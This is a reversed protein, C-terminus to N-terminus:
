RLTMESKQTSGKPAIVMQAPDTKRAWCGLQRYNIPELDHGRLREQNVAGRGRDVKVNFRNRAWSWGKTRPTTPSAGLARGYHSKTSKSSASKRNEEPKEVKEEKGKKGRGLKGSRNGQGRKTRRLSQETEPIQINRRTRGRIHHTTRRRADKRRKTNRRSHTANRTNRGAKTTQGDTMEEQEEKYQRVKNAITIEWEEGTRQHLAIGTMSARGLKEM